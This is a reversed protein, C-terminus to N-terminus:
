DFIISEDDMDIYNKKKSDIESIIKESKYSM